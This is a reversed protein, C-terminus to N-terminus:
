TTGRCVRLTSIIIKTNPLEERAHTPTASRPSTARHGAGTASARSCGQPGSHAPGLDKCPRSCESNVQQKERSKCALRCM